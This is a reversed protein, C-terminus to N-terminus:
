CHGLDYLVHVRHWGGGGVIGGFGGKLVWWLRKRREWTEWAYSTLM